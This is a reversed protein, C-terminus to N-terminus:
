TTEKESASIADRREAWEALAVLSSIERRPVFFWQDPLFSRLWYGDAEGSDDEVLMLRGYKM